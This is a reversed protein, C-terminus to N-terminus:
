DKDGDKPIVLDNVFIPHGAGYDGFDDNSATTQVEVLTTLDLRTKVYLGKLFAIVGDCILACETGDSDAGGGVALSGLGKHVKVRTLGDGAGM